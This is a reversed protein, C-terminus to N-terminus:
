RRHENAEERIERGGSQIDAGIGEVTNCGALSGLGAFFFTAALISFLFKIM